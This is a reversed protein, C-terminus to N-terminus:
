LSPPQEAGASGASAHQYVFALTLPLSHSANLLNAAHAGCLRALVENDTSQFAAEWTCRSGAPAGPVAADAMALQLEVLVDRSSGGPLALGSFPEAAPVTFLLSLASPPQLQLEVRCEALSVARRRKSGLAAGAAPFAAALASTCVASFCAHRRLQRLLAPLHAADRLPLRRLLVGARRAEDLEWVQRQSSREGTPVDIRRSHAAGGCRRGALLSLLDAAPAADALEALVAAAADDPLGACALLARADTTAMALPPEVAIVWQAYAAGDGAAELVVHYALAATAAPHRHPPSYLCARLGRCSPECGGCASSFAARAQQWASESRLPSAAPTAGLARQADRLCAMSTSCADVRGHRVMDWLSAKLEDTTAHAWIPATESTHHLTPEGFFDGSAILPLELLFDTCGVYAVAIQGGQKPAAEFEYVEFDLVHARARQALEALAVQGQPHQVGCHRLAHGVRQLLIADSLTTVSSTKSLDAM